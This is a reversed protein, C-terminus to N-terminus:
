KKRKKRGKLPRPEKKEDGRRGDDVNWKEKTWM